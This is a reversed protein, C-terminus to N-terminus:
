PWCLFYSQGQVLKGSDSGPEAFFKRYGASNGTEVRVFESRIILVDVYILM